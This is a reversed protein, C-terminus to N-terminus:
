RPAVPQCLSLLSCPESSKVGVRVRVRMRVRVTVMVRVRFRVRVAPEGVSSGGTQPVHTCRLGLGLGFKIGLGLGLRM